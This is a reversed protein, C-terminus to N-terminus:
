VKGSAVATVYQKPPSFAIKEPGEMGGVGMGGVGMSYNEIFPSKDKDPSGGLSNNRLMAPSSDKRNLTQNNDEPSKDRPPPSDRPSSKSDIILEKPLGDTNRIDYGLTKSTRLGNNKPKDDPKEDPLTNNRKLSTPDPQDSSFAFYPEPSDTIYDNPKKKSTKPSDRYPSYPLNKKGSLTNYNSPYDNRYYEDGLTTKSTDKAQTERWLPPQYDTNELTHYNLRRGQELPNLRSQPDVNYRPNENFMKTTSPLGNLNAEPPVIGKKGKNPAYLQDQNLANITAQYSENNEQLMAQHDDVIRDYNFKNNQGVLNSIAKLITYDEGAEALELANKGEFDKMMAISRLFNHDSLNILTEIVKKAQYRIAKHLSFRKPDGFNQLFYNNQHAAAVYCVIDKDLSYQLLREWSQEKPVYGKEIMVSCVSLEGQYNGYEMALDFATRGQEEVADMDAKFELLMSAIEASGVYAACHLPTWKRHDRINVYAGKKLYDSFNAM